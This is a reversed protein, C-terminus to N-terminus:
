QKQILKQSSYATTCPIAYRAGSVQGDCRQLVMMIRKERISHQTRTEFVKGAFFTSRTLSETFSLCVRLKIGSSWLHNCADPTFCMILNILLLFHMCCRVHERNISLSVRPMIICSCAVCWVCIHLSSEVWTREIIIHPILLPFTPHYMNWHKM